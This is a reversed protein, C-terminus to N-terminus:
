KQENMLKGFQDLAIKVVVEETSLYGSMRPVKPIATLPEWELSRGRADKRKPMQFLALFRRPAIGVFPEFDVPTGLAERKGDVNITNKYLEKALSKPYPEIYVVRTIGSAIIHRACIHCPFTTCYLQTDKLQGGRRAADTIASMEAHVIRGFELISAVRTKKLPKDGKYLAMSVLEESGKSGITDSWWDNPINEFAEKLIEDRMKASSDYGNRYDRNDEELTDLKDEWVSGGGGKPVENCGASVIEGDSTSIVAGVQRSLDGSRLAAAQAHFMVYEDVTPTTNPHSFLLEIFRRLQPEHSKESNLFVFIDGLPFTESVNQGFIEQDIMTHETAHSKIGNQDRDILEESVSKFQELEFSDYSNAIATSLNKLREHKSSYASILFFNEGYIDRLISVEEPTKLSNIIYAQPRPDRNSAEANDKRMVKIATVALVALVDARNSRQRLSDGADMASRIREDAKVNDAASYEPCLKSSRMLDSIRVHVARYGVSRFDRELTDSVTVLNAGVAGVLGIFIEPRETMGVKWDLAAVYFVGLVKDTKLVVDLAVPLFSWKNFPPGSASM